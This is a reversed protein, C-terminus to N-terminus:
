VLTYGTMPSDMFKWMGKVMKKTRLIERIGGKADPYTGTAEVLWSMSMARAEAHPMRETRQDYPTLVLTGGDSWDIDFIARMSKLKQGGSLAWDTSMGDYWFAAAAIDKLRQESEPGEKIKIPIRNQIQQAPIDQMLSIFNSMMLQKFAQYDVMSHISKAATEKDETSIDPLSIPEIVTLQSDDTKYLDNITLAALNTDPHLDSEQADPIESTPDKVEKLWEPHFAFEDEMSIRVFKGVSLYGDRMIRDILWCQHFGGDRDWDFQFMDMIVSDEIEIVGKENEQPFETM